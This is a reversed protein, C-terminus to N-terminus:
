LKPCSAVNLIFEHIKNITIIINTFIVDPYFISKSKSKLPLTRGKMCCVNGESASLTIKVNKICLVLIFQAQPFSPFVSKFGIKLVLHTKECYFCSNPYM